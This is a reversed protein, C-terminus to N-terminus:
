GVESRIKFEYFVKTAKAVSNMNVGYGNPTELM